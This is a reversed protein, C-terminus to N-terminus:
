SFLLYLVNFLVLLIITYILLNIFHSLAANNGWLQHEIAFSLIPLPRYPQNSTFTSSSGLSPTTFIQSANKLGSQVLTNQTYFSEDDLTFDFSLTQGYLVVSLLIILIKFLKRSSTNTNSNASNKISKVKM